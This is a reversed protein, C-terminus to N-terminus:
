DIQAIAALLDANVKQVAEWLSLDTLPKGGRLAETLAYSTEYLRDFGLNQALGKLTHAGRFATEWDQAAIAAGLAECTPDNQYKLVFKKILAESCLRRLTDAYNSGTTAYFEELTM